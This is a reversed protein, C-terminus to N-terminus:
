ILKYNNVDVRWQYKSRKEWLCFAEQRHIEFTQRDCQNVKMFHQIIAEFDLTGESARTGALGIHKVWHCLPCLAIFGKLTQIHKADDYEWLEHCHLMGSAHCIGCTHGYDAYIKKRLIDWQERGMANRLNNYWSTSPVLEITLTLRPSPSM